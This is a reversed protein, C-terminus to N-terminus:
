PKQNAKQQREKERNEREQLIKEYEPQQEPKLMARIENRQAQRIKGSELKAMEKATEKSRERMQHFRERTQDLITNLKAIQPEDLSLRTRLEETYKRRFEEPSPKATAPPIIPAGANVSHVTYLRHGFAGVVAGSVFVALLSSAVTLSSRRM